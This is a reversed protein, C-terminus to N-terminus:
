APPPVALAAFEEMAEARRAPVLHLTCAREFRAGIREWIAIATDLATRDGLRGDIRALCATAWDNEASAARATAVIRAVDDTCPGAVTALEAVAALAYARYTAPAEGVASVLAQSQNWRGAHLAVRADVFATLCTFRAHRQLWGPMALRAAARWREAADDDGRLAHVLVLAHAAMGVGAAAPEGARHWGSLMEEAKATADDFRGMLVFPMVFRKVNYAVGGYIEDQWAAQAAMLANAPDGAGLAVEAAVEFTEWIEPASSPQHRPMRSILAIRQRVLAGAERYRGAAKAVTTMADLAAFELPVDGCRRAAELASAAVEADISRGAALPLWAQTATIWADAVQDDPPASDKARAMLTALEAQPVPEPFEGVARVACMVASALATAHARADGGVAALDAAELLLAYARDCRGEIMSIDAANRLDAAAAAPSPARKAAQEYRLRAQTSFRRAFLLHALTRGMQAAAPGDRDAAARLDDVVLDFEDAWADGAQVRRELARATAHAWQTHRERIASEEGSTALRELAYARATELLRWRHDPSSRRQHTVMNSDVLRGVTDAVAAARGDPSVAVASLLDFGGVFVGLRRFLTRQDDDLLDHSWDIVARMSWHRADAGRGGTLARLHDGLATLLGEVGLSASRAAALEIALPMGDLRSCLARVMEADAHFEPDAAAARDYFLKEAESGAAGGSVDSVLSLPPIQVSRGAVGLPHRSTTLVRLERCAGLASEVFASVPDLVHECNDLVLLSNRRNLAQHIVDELPVRPREVVGLATAVAQLVMGERVPVLDVFAGISGSADAVVVALRTKGVGGPGILNVLTSERLAALVAELERERGVFSTRAVPLARIRTTVPSEPGAVLDALAALERRDTVGLKRLLSSVHSEVTRISISFRSAIQANSLHAGVAALIQAERESMERSPGATVDRM